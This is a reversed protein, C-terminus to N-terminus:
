KLRVTQVWSGTKGYDESVMIGRPGVVYVYKGDASAAVAVGGSEEAIAFKDKFSEQAKQANIWSSGNNRPAIAPHRVGPKRATISHTM